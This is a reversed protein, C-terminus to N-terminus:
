AINELTKVTKYLMYSVFSVLLIIPLALMINVEKGKAQNYRVM